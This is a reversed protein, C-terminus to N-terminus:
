RAGRPCRQSSLTGATGLVDLGFDLTRNGTVDAPGTFRGLMDLATGANKM